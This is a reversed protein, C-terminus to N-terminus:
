MWAYLKSCVVKQTARFTKLEESGGMKVNQHSKDASFGRGSYMFSSVDEMTEANM